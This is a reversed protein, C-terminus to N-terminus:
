VTLRFGNSGYEITLPALGAWESLFCQWSRGSDGSYCCKDLNNALFVLVFIRVPNSLAKAYRELKEQDDTFYKKKPSM